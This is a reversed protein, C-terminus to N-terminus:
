VIPLRVLASRRGGVGSSPPLRYRPRDAPVVQGPAGGVEGAAALLHPPQGSGVATTTPAISPVPKTIPAARVDGLFKREGRTRTV